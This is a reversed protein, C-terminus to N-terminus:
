EPLKEPFKTPDNQPHKPQIKLPFSNLFSSFVALVKNVVIERDLELYDLRNVSHPTFPGTHDRRPRAVRDVAPAQGRKLEAM